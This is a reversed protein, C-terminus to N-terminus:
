YVSIEQMGIGLLSVNSLDHFHDWKGDSWFLIFYKPIFSGLSAFSM